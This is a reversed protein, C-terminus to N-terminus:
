VSNPVIKGLCTSCESYHKLWFSHDENVDVSLALKSLDTAAVAPTHIGIDPLRGHGGSVSSSCIENHSVLGKM